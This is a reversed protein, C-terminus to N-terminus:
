RPRFHDIVIPYFCVIISIISSYDYIVHCVRTWHTGGCVGGRGPRPRRPVFELGNRLNMSETARTPISCHLAFIFVKVVTLNSSVGKRVV